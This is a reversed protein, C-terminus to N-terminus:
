WFYNLAHKAFNASIEAMKAECRALEHGSAVDRFNLEFIGAFVETSMMFFTSLFLSIMSNTYYKMVKVSRKNVLKLISVIKSIEILKLVTKHNYEFGSM